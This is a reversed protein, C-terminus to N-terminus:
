VTPTSWNNLLDKLKDGVSSILDPFFNTIAVFAIVIIGVVILTWGLQESSVTLGYNNALLGGKANYKAMRKQDSRKSMEGFFRKTKKM